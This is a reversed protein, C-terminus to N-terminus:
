GAKRLSGAVSPVKVLQCMQMLREYARWGLHVPLSGLSDGANPMAEGIPDAQRAVRPALPAATTLILGKNHDHRHKVLGTITDIHWQTARGEGLSDILLVDARAVARAVRHGGQATQRDSSLRDGLVKLLGRYDFYLCRIGKKALLRLAAVGLHRVRDMDSGHLLLGRKPGLPFERAFGKALTAVRHLDNYRQLDRDHSPYELNEFSLEALRPPLGLRAERAASALSSRCECRRAVTGDESSIQIWGTDECRECM